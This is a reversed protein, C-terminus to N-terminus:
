ASAGFSEPAAGALRNSLLTEAALVVMGLLLLYWWVRPEQNNADSAERRISASTGAQAPLTTLSELFEDAPMSTLDWERPDVNVAIFEADM